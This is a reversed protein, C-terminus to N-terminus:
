SPVTPTSVHRRKFNLITFIWGVVPVTYVLPTDNRHVVIRKKAQGMKHYCCTSM